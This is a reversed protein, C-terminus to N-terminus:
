PADASVCGTVGSADVSCVYVKRLAGFLLGDNRAIVVKGDATAAVGAYGCAGLSAALGAALVSMKIMKM